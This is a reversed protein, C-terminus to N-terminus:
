ALWPLGELEPLEALLEGLATKADVEGPVIRAAVAGSVRAAAFSTGSWQAFQEFPPLTGNPPTARSEPPITVEGRLYTSVLDVGQALVDIWPANAPPQSWAPIKGDWDTAGVAVVDDLAAPWLPRKADEPSDMSAHNGAAAVLVISADLRDVATALVLPPKRDGTFCGFSMNLVHVGSRGLKVLQKAVAWSDAQGDDGLVARVELRAGPAEQLVLGSVFTAHGAAYEVHAGDAPLLSPTPAYYAGALYPHTFLRTDAVGVVPAAGSPQRQPSAYQKGSAMEPLGEGGGGINHAVRALDRNKGMTPVWGGYRKEFDEYLTRLVADLAFTAGPDHAEAFRQVEDHPVSMLTLGLETSSDLVACPLNLDALSQRVLREHLLAVVLEDHAPQGGTEHDIAANM